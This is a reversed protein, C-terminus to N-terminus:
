EGRMLQPLLTDRISALTRSESHNSLIHDFISRCNGNFTDLIDPSPAVIPFEMIAEGSVNAQATGHSRAEVYARFKPLRTACYWFALAETGPKKLVFRGVRQNLLPLNDTPPVLGVAGVYGTMGILMDGANLRYRAAQLAIEESVYSVQTLDIIGPKVSGIKVVPIGSEQWDHSKFSFGSQFGISNRLTGVEWGEPVLGLESEVLRSPFLAATEADMGQPIRGEMKARVPDFDIFWSKFLARAMQELTENMRRNLEIKDDLDGLIKAIRRQEPLPPLLVSIGGLALTPVRQRGSSGTMQSIAFTRVHPSITLYYAYDNDTVGARGRVVIFETSGHGLHQGDKALFRAIKGNELCPTIRAMLTDRHQFKSGGGSFPRLESATVDRTGPSVAAMDVFAYLVDKELKTSPNLQVAESFPIERWEGSM